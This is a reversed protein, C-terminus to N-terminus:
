DVYDESQRYSSSAFSNPEKFNKKIVSVYLEYRNLPSSIILLSYLDWFWQFLTGIFKIYIREKVRDRSGYKNILQKTKKPFIIQSITLLLPRAGFELVSPKSNSTWDGTLMDFSKRKGSMIVQGLFWKEKIWFVTETFFGYRQVLQELAVPDIWCTHEPNILIDNKFASYFYQERYFPNATSILIHGNMKLHKEVNLLLGEFNSLHEILNGIVVVDYQEGLNFPHTIDAFVVNYGQSKLNEVEIELLDVGVCSNAVDRIQKHLWTDKSTNEANHNVCGIDLVDKDRCYRSILEFRSIPSNLNKAFIEKDM